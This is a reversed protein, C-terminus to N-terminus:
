ALSACNLANVARADAVCTLARADLALRLLAHPLARARARPTVSAARTTPRASSSSPRAITARAFTRSTPSARSLSKRVACRRCARLTRARRRHPRPRAGFAFFAAGSACLFVWRTALCGARLLVYRRLLTRGACAGQVPANVARLRARWGRLRSSNGRILASVKPM